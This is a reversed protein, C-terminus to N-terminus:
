ARRVAARPRSRAASAVDAFKTPRFGSSRPAACAFRPGREPASQGIHARFLTTKGAGNAGMIGSSGRGQQVTLDIDHLRAYAGSAADSRASKAPDLDHTCPKQPRLCPRTHRKPLVGGVFTVLLIGLLVLYL